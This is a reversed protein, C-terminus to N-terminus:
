LVQTRDRNTSARSDQGQLRSNSMSRTVTVAMIEQFHDKELGTGVEIKVTM